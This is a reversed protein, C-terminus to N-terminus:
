ANRFRLPSQNREKNHVRDQPDAVPARASQRSHICSNPAGSRPRLFRDSDLPLLPRLQPISVRIPLVAIFRRRPRITIFVRGRSHAYSYPQAVPSSTGNRHCSAARQPIDPRQSRAHIAPCLCRWSACPGCLEPTHRRFCGPEHVTVAEPREPARRWTARRSRNDDGEPNRNGDAVSGGYICLKPSPLRPWESPKARHSGHLARSNLFPSVIMYRFLAIRM